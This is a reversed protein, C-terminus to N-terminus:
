SKVLLHATTPGAVEDLSKYTCGSRFSNLRKLLNAEKWSGKVANRTSHLELFCLIPNLLTKNIVSKSPLLFFTACSSLNLERPLHLRADQARGDNYTVTM